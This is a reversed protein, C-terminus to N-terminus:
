IQLVFKVLIFAVVAGGVCMKWHVRRKYYMHLCLWGAMLYPVYSWWVLVQSGELFRGFFLVMTSIIGMFAFFVKEIWDFLIEYSM